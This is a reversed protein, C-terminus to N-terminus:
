IWPFVLEVMTMFDKRNTLWLGSRLMYRVACWRCYGGGGTLFLFGDCELLSVTIACGSCTASWNDYCSDDRKMLYGGYHRQRIKTRCCSEKEDYLIKMLYHRVCM